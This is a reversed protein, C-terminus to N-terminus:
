PLGFRLPHPVPSLHAACLVAADNALLTWPLASLCPPVFVSQDPHIQLVHRKLLFVVIVVAPTARNPSLTLAHSTREFPRSDRKKLQQQQKESSSRISDPSFRWSSCWIRL